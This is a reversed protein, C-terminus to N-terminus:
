VHARGIKERVWECRGGRERLEGGSARVRERSVEGAHEGRRTEGSNREEGGASGECRRGREEM